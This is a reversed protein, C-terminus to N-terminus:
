SFGMTHGVLLEQPIVCHGGCIGWKEWSSSHGKSSCICCCASVQPINLILLMEKFLFCRCVKMCLGAPDCLTCPVWYGPLLSYGKELMLRGAIRQQRPFSFQLHHQYEISQECEGPSDQNALNEMICFLVRLCTVAAHIPVSDVAFSVATVWSKSVGNGFGIVMKPSEAWAVFSLSM